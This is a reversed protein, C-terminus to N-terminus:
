NHNRPDSADAFVSGVLYFSITIISIIVTPFILQYRYMPMLMTSRGENILNGLSPLGIPLGLGLYTLFVELGIATPIAQAMRMMIVSVLYPIINKRIITTTPTGLCRSALNYERDRLMLIMNRVLRATYAWRVFCMAIIITLLGPKMIYTFLVLSIIRPVNNIINYIETIFRDLKRVYGWIAGITVGIVIEFVAVVFGIFLSIRVGMWIRAWLDQGIANTGLVFVDNPRVNYLQMGTEESFNIETPSRQGPIYPQVFTFLVLAIIVFILLVALKNKTFMRFTARWYSYGSSATQEAEFPNYEAMEFLTADLEAIEEPKLTSQIKM